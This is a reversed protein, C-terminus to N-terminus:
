LLSHAMEKQLVNLSGSDVLQQSAVPFYLRAETGVGPQSSIDISGQMAEVLQRSIYLGLGVGQAQSMSPHDVRSFPQFLRARQEPPIGIGQDRVSIRIAQPEAPREGEGPLAFSGATLEITGGRPSYKIANDLLNNLVHQIRNADAQIPPLHPAVHCELSLQSHRQQDIHQRARQAARTCAERVDVATIRLTLRGSQMRSADLLDAILEELRRTEEMIMDLYHQQHAPTLASQLTHPSSESAAQQADAVSYAQLLGAYGKIAALPARLEHSVISISGFTESTLALEHQHTSARESTAARALCSLVLARVAREVGPLISPIYDRLLADEGWTFGAANALLFYGLMGAPGSLPAIAVPQAAQPPNAHVVARLPPLYQIECRQCAIDCAARVREDRMLVALHVAGFSRASLATTFPFLPLLPHQLAPVPCDIVLMAVDCCALQSVQWTIKELFSQAPMM